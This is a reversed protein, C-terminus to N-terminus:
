GQGPWPANERPQKELLNAHQAAATLLEHFVYPTVHHDRFRDRLHHYIPWLANIAQNETQSKVADLLDKQSGIVLNPDIKIIKAILDIIAGQLLGNIDTYRLRHNIRIALELHDEKHDTFRVSTSCINALRHEATKARAEASLRLREEKAIQGSVADLLANTRKWSRLLSKKSLSRNKPPRPPCYRLAKM